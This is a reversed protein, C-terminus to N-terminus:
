KKTMTTLRKGKTITLYITLLVPGVFILWEGPEEMTLIWKWAKWGGEFTNFLVFGIIGLLLLIFNAIEYKKKKNTKLNMLLGVYGCTGFIMSIVIPVDRLYALSVMQFLEYLTMFQFFSLPVLAILTLIINIKEKNM